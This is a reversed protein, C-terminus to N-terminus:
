PRTGAASQAPLLNPQVAGGGRLAARCAAAIMPENDAEKSKIELHQSFWMMCAGKITSHSTDSEPRVISQITAFAAPSFPPQVVAAAARKAVGVATELDKAEQELGRVTTRASDRESKTDNARETALELRTTQRAVAAEAERLQAGLREKDEDKTAANRASAIEDRRKEAAAKDAKARNEETKAATYDAEKTLLSTRAAQLREIAGALQIQKVQEDQLKERDAQAEPLPRHQAIVNLAAMKMMVNDIQNLMLGYGFEGMMGNAYAECARYYGDRLLQIMETRQTLQQVTETVSRALSADVEVKELAVGLRANLSAALASVADPSPEACVVAQKETKYAYSEGTESDLFRVARQPMFIFRQKADAAVGSIGSGDPVKALHYTETTASCAGVLAATALALLARYM